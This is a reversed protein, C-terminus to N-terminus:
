TCQTGHKRNGDFAVIILSFFAELFCFSIVVCVQRLFVLHTFITKPSTTHLTVPKWFLVFLTRASCKNLEMNMYLTDMCFITQAYPYVRLLAPIWANCLAKVAGNYNINEVRRGGRGRWWLAKHQSSRLHKHLTRLTRGWQPFNVFFGSFLFLASPLLTHCPLLTIIYYLIFTQKQLVKLLLITKPNKVISQQVFVAHLRLVPLWTKTLIHSKCCIIVQKNGRMNKM